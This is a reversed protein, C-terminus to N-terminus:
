LSEELYKLKNYVTKRTIGLIRAAEAKTKGEKLLEILEFDINKYSPHNLRNFLREKARESIKRKTKESRKAGTHHMITHETHDMVELNELRNDHKIENKHHVVENAKLYRGLAMEMVVRHEMVYGLVDTNPHTKICVVVYGKPTRKRGTINHVDGNIIVSYFVQREKPVAM